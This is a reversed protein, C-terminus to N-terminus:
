VSVQFIKMACRWHVSDNVTGTVTQIVKNSSTTLSTAWPEVTVSQNAGAYIKSVGGGVVQAVNSADLTFAGRFVTLQSQGPALHGITSNLAGLVWSEIGYVTSSELALAVVTTTVDDGTTVGQNITFDLREVMQKQWEEVSLPNGFEPLDLPFGNGSGM